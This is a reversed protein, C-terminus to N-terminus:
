IGASLGLPIDFYSLSLYLRLGYLLFELIQSLYRISLRCFHKGLFIPSVPHLLQMSEIYLTFQTQEEKMEHDGRIIDGKGKSVKPGSLGQVQFSLRLEM